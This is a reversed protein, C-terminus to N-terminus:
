TNTKINGNVLEEFTYRSYNIEMIGNDTEKHKTSIDRAEALALEKNYFVFCNNFMNILVTSDIVFNNTKDDYSGFLNLYQTSYSVRYGEKTILIYIGTEM